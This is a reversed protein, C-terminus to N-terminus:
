VKNDMQIWHLELAQFKELEIPLIHGGEPYGPYQFKYRRKAATIGRLRRLLLANKLGPYPDTRM